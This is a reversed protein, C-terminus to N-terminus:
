SACRTPSQNHVTIRATGTLRQTGPDLAVDIAYDTRLQWSRATPRGTSDRTGAAMARRISTPLPIDRRIARPPLARPAPRPQAVLHVPRAATAALLTAGLLATLIAPTTRTPRHAAHTPFRLRPM